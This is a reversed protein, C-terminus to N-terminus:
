SGLSKGTACTGPAEGVKPGLAGRWLTANARDPPPQATPEPEPNMSTPPGGISTSPAERGCLVWLKRPPTPVARDSAIPAPPTVATM